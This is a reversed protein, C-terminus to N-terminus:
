FPHDDLDGLSDADDRLFSDGGAAAPVPSGQSQGKPTLMEMESM